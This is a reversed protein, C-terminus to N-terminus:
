PRMAAAVFQPAEIVPFVKATGWAGGSWPFTAVGEAFPYGVIANGCANSALTLPGTPTQVANPLTQPTWGASPGGYLTVYPNMQPDRTVLLAAGGPLPALSPADSPTVELERPSSWALTTADHAISALTGDPGQFVVLADETGGTLGVIRPPGNVVTQGVLVPSAWGQASHQEIALLSGADPRDLGVAATLVGSVPAV